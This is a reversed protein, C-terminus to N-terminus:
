SHHKRFCNSNIQCCVPVNLWGTYAFHLIILTLDPPVKKKFGTSCLLKSGPKTYFFQANRARVTESHVTRIASCVAIKDRHLMLHHIKYNLCITNVARYPSLRWINNLNNEKKLPNFPSSSQKENLTIQERCQSYFRGCVGVTASLKYLIDFCGCVCM